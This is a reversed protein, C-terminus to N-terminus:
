PASHRARIRRRVLAVVPEMERLADAEDLITIETDGAVHREALRLFCEVGRVPAVLGLSRGPLALGFTRLKVARSLELMAEVAREFRSEDFGASPGLGFVFIKDISPLRRRAPLVSEFGLDGRVVGREILRSIMGAFRWDVWGLTGRPPMEDAFLPLLLAECGLEDLHELDDQEFLVNV